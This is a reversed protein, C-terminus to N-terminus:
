IVDLTRKDLQHFQNMLKSAREFDRNASILEIMGHVANVNSDELYGQQVDPTPAARLVERPATYNSGELHQLQAPETLTVVTLSALPTGGQSLRGDTGITVPGGKPDVRVPSVEGRELDGTLIPHGSANVLTGDSSMHMNGARTLVDGTPTRLMLFGDGGLAVDLPNGTQRLNGAALDNRTEVMATFGKEAPDGKADVLFQQFSSRLQKYGATDVNALNNSVVAIQNDAAVAASMPIYVSNAM